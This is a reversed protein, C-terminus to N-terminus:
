EKLVKYKVLQSTNVIPHFKLNEPLKLKFANKGLSEIVRYLSLFKLGLKKSLHNSYQKLKLKKILLLVMDEKRIENEVREKDSQKKQIKQVRKMNEVVKKREVKLRKYREKVREGLGV